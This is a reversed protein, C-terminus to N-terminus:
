QNILHVHARVYDRVRVRMINNNKNNVQQLLLLLSHQFTSYWSNKDKSRYKKTLKLTSVKTSFKNFQQFHLLICLFRQAVNQPFGTSLTSLTSFAILPLGAAPRFTVDHKECPAGRRACSRKFRALPSCRCLLFGSCLAQVSSSLFRLCLLM